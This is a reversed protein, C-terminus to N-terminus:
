GSFGRYGKPRHKGTADFFDEFIALLVSNIAEKSMEKLTHRSKIEPKIIPEGMELPYGPLEIPIFYDEVGVAGAEVILPSQYGLSKKGFDIYHHLAVELTKELADIPIHKEGPIQVEPALRTADVGWLERGPFVQTSTLLSGIGDEIKYSYTIGGYSNLDWCAGDGAIDRLPHIKIGYILDKIEANKLPKMTTSPIVRLYLLAGPKYGLDEHKMSPISRKALAAGQEFYRASSDITKVEKYKNERSPEISNIHERLANKLKGSLVNKAKLIEEKGADAKLNFTIPGAKHRLDFPLTNRDGYAENLIMLLGEERLHALAYGLEIAVNSNLLRKKNPSRKGKVKLTSDVTVKGISTVDAVFVTSNRIKEFILQALDPSGPAGKRDHDLHLSQREAEHVQLETKLKKIATQLADKILHRGINGPTDSQWSWFIKM